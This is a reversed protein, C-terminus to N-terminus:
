SGQRPNAEWGPGHPGMAGTGGKGPGRAPPHLPSQLAAWDGVRREGVGPNM